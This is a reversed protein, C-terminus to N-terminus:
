VCVPVRKPERRPSCAHLLSTQLEDAPQLFLRGHLEDIKRQLNRPLRRLKDHNYNYNNYNYYDYHNHNCNRNNYHNDDFDHNNHYDYDCHLYIRQKHGLM